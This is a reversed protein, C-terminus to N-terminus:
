RAPAPATDLHERDFPFQQIKANLGSVAAATLDMDPNAILISQRNMLISCRRQQYIQQAIPDLEQAVRNIAKEQTAQMERQRLEYKQQFATARTQLAQGQTQRSTADLTAAKAQFDKADATLKADEPQLEASVVQALQQLRTKVYQGVTSQAIAQDVSLICVGPIAPGQAIAPAPTSAAKAAPTQAAASGAAGIVFATTMVLKSLKSKM